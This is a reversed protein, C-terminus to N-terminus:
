LVKNAKLNPKKGQRALSLKRRHEETFKKGFNPNKPGKRCESLKQRTTESIPRRKKGSESMKKRSAKSYVVQEGGTTLNYGLPSISNLFKIHEREKKSLEELSNASDIQEITFNEIGYKKFAAKLALCGSSGSKHMSWRNELHQVTQGVYRKGNIKNTIVYIIM